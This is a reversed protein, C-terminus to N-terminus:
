WDVAPDIQRYRHVVLGGQSRFWSNCVDRQAVGAQEYVPKEREATYETEETLNGIDSHTHHPQNSHIPGKTMTSM